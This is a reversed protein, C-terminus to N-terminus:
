KKQNELVSKLDAGTKFLAEGTDMALSADILYEQGNISILIKDRTKGIKIRPNKPAAPFPQTNM